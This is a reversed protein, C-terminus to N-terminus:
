FYTILASLPFRKGTDGSEDRFLQGREPWQSDKLLRSGNTAMLDSNGSESIRDEESIASFRTRAYGDQSFNPTTVEVNGHNDQSIEDSTLAM